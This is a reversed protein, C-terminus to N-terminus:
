VAPRNGDFADQLWRVAARGLRRPTPDQNQLAVDCARELDQAQMGIGRLAVPAANDRALDFVAQAASRGGLSGIGRGLQSLAGAGFVVRAAQGHWVFRKM